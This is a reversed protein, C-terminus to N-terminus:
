FVPVMKFSKKFDSVFCRIYFPRLLTTLCFARFGTERLASRCFDLLTFQFKCLNFCRREHYWKVKLKTLLKLFDQLITGLATKIQSLLSLLLAFDTWLWRRSLFVVVTLVSFGNWIEKRSFFVRQTRWHFLALAGLASLYIHLFGLHVWITVSIASWLESDM